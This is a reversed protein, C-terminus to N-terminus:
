FVRNAVVLSFVLTGGNKVLDVKCGPMKNM